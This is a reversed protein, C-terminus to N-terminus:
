NEFHSGFTTNSKIDQVYIFTVIVFSWTLSTIYRPAIYLMVAEKKNVFCYCQFDTLLM